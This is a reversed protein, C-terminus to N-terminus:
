SGTNLGLPPESRVGARHHRTHTWHDSILCSTKMDSHELYLEEIAM